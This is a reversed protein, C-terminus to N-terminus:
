RRPPKGLQPALIEITGTFYTDSDYPKYETSRRHKKELFRRIVYRAKGPSDFTVPFSKYLNEGPFLKDFRYEFFRATSAPGPPQIFLTFKGAKTLCEKKNVVKFVINEEKGTILPAQKKRYIDPLFHITAKPDFRIKPTYVFLSGSTSNNRRDSEAFTHDRNVAIQYRKVGKHWWRVGRKKMKAAPFTKGPALPPVEWTRTGDEDIHLWLTTKKSEARGVNKVQFHFWRHPGGIRVDGPHTIYVSLDPLPEVNYQLYAQNNSLNTEGQPSSFSIKVRNRYSGDVPVHYHFSFRMMDGSTNTDMPKLHQSSRQSKVPERGLPGDIWLQAIIQTGPDDPYEGGINVVNVECQIETATTKIDPTCQTSIIKLDPPDMDGGPPLPSPTPPVPGTHIFQRHFPKKQKNAVQVSSGNFRLTNPRKRITVNQKERQIRKHRNPLFSFGFRHRRTLTNNTPTAPDSVKMTLTNIGKTMRIPGQIITSHKPRLGPVSFFNSETSGDARKLSGNIRTPASTRGGVNRVEVEVWTENAKKAKFDNFTIKTVALDAKPFRSGPLPPLAPRNNPRHVPRPIIKKDVHEKGAKKQQNKVMITKQAINNGPTGPDDVSVTITARGSTLPVAWKFNKLNGAPLPPITKLKSQTKGNLIEHLTFTLANAGSQVGGANRVRVTIIAFKTGSKPDTRTHIQLNEVALDPRVAQLGKKLSAANPKTPLPRGMFGAHARIGSFFTMCLVATLMIGYRISSMHTGPQVIIKPNM